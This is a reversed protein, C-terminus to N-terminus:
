TSRSYIRSVHHHLRTYHTVSGRCEHANANFDVYLDFRIRAKAGKKLVVLRPDTIICGVTPVHSCYFFLGADRFGSPNWCALRTCTFLRVVWTRRRIRVAATVFSTRDLGGRIYRVLKNRKKVVNGVQQRRTQFM